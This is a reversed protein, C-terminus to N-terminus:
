MKMKFLKLVKYQSCKVFPVVVKLITTQPVASRSPYCRGKESSARRSCPVSTLGRCQLGRPRAYSRKRGPFTGQPPSLYPPLLLM